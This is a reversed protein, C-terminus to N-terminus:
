FKFFQVLKQFIIQLQIKKSRCDFIGTIIYIRM